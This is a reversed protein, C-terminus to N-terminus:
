VTPKIKKPKVMVKVKGNPLSSCPRVIIRKPKEIRYYEGDIQMYTKLNKGKPDQSKFDIVYPGKGQGLRRGCGKIFREKALATQSAFSIMEIIGDGFSQQGFDSIKKGDKGVIGVKGVSLSHSSQSKRVRQKGRSASWPDSAGGM